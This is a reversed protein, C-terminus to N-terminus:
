FLYASYVLLYRAQFYDMSAKSQYIALQTMKILTIHPCAQM